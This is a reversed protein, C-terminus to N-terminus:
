KETGKPNLYTREINEDQFSIISRGSKQEKLQNAMESTTINVCYRM